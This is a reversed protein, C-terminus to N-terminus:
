RKWKKERLLLFDREINMVMIKGGSALVPEGRRWNRSSSSAFFAM